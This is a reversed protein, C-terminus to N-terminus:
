FAIRNDRIGRTISNQHTKVKLMAPEIVKLDAVGELNSAFKDKESRLYDIILKKTPAFVNDKFESLENKWWYFFCGEFSTPKILGEKKILPKLEKLEIDFKKATLYWWKRYIQIEKVISDIDDRSYDLKFREM